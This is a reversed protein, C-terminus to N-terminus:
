TYGLLPRAIQYASQIQYDPITQGSHYFLAGDGATFMTLPDTAMWVMLPSATDFLAAPISTTDTDKDLKQTTPNSLYLNIATSAQFTAAMFYWTDAVITQTSVVNFENTGDSSIIFEAKDSSNKLLIFCRLNTAPRWKSIIACNNGMADADFRVWALLSVVGAFRTDSLGGSASHMDDVGDYRYFSIFNETMYVPTSTVALTGGTAISNLQLPNTNGNTISPLYLKRTGHLMVYTSVVMGIAYNPERRDPFFARMNDVAEPQLISTSM